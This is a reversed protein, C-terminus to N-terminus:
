REKYQEPEIASLGHPDAGKFNIKFFREMKKGVNWRQQFDIIGM